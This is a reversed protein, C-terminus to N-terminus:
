IRVELRTLWDRVGTAIEHVEVIDNSFARLPCETAIHKMTQSPAGCDCEASDTLGWMHMNYNCRGHGTRIRNLTTWEIRPLDFGPVRVTPDAVLGDRDINGNYWEERCRDTANFDTEFLGSATRIPPKPSALRNCNVLEMDLHIPLRSNQQAKSYEKVLAQQRRIHPPAINSLVPLWETPTSKVAGSVTRLTDNLQVDIKNTHASNLWVASCHEATSFVLAM